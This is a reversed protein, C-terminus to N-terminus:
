TTGQRPADEDVLVMVSVDKLAKFEVSMLVEGILVEGFSRVAGREDL